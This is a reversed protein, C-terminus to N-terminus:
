FFEKIMLGLIAVIVAGLILYIAITMNNRKLYNFTMIISNIAEMVIEVLIIILQVGFVICIIMAGLAIPEFSCWHCILISSIFSAGLGTIIM